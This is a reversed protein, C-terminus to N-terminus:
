KEVPAIRGEQLAAVIAGPGKGAHAALAQPSRSKRAWGSKGTPLPYVQTCDWDRPFRGIVPDRELCVM